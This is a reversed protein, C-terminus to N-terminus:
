VRFQSGGNAYRVRSGLEDRFIEYAETGTCHGTHIQPIDQLQQAIERVREESEGVLHFGGIVHTLPTDGLRRRAARVINVIGAHSCGTLLV